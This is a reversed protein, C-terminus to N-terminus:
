GDESTVFSCDPWRSALLNGVLVNPRSTFGMSNNLLSRLTTGLNPAGFSACDPAILAMAGPALM